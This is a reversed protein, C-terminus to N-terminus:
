CIVSFRKKTLRKKDIFISITWEGIFDDMGYTPDFATVVSAGTPRHLRLWVWSRAQDQSVYLPVKTRERKKGQPDTWVAELQHKDKSLGSIELIAYIKDSCTFETEPKTDPIGNKEKATLYVKHTIEAIANSTIGGATLIVIYVFLQISKKM